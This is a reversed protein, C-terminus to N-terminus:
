TSVPIPSLSNDIITHLIYMSLTACCSCLCFVIHHTCDLTMYVSLGVCLKCYSSIKFHKTHLNAASNITTAISSGISLVKFFLRNAATNNKATMCCYVTKHIKLYQYNIRSYIRGCSLRSQLNRLFLAGIM